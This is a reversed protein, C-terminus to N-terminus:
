KSTGKLKLVCSHKNEHGHQHKATFSSDIFSLKIPLTHLAYNLVRM